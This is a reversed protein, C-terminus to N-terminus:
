CTPCHGRLTVEHASIAMSSKQEVASIAKELAPDEFPVVKGCQECVIHHHHHGGPDAPEYSATGKSVEVRRLLGLEELQELARYISARSVESGDRRLEEEIELASMACHQHSLLEIVAQRAGGRRHGPGQLTALAHEAWTPTSAAM